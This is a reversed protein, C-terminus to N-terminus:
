LLTFFDTADFDVTSDRINSGFNDVCLAIFFRADADTALRNDAFELSKVLYLMAWNQPFDVDVAAEANRIYRMCFRM